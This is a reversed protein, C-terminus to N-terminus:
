QTVGQHRSTSLLRARIAADADASAGTVVQVQPRGDAAMTRGRDETDEALVQIAVSRAATIAVEGTAIAAALPDHLPAARVGDVSEYFDIYRRLMTGLALHLPHGSDELLAADDDTFTHQLTVDLPVLTVDFGATLVQAAAAADNYINAEAHDTTNGPVWVAGGMIILRHIRQPLAPDQDLARAINTLPGIAVVDLEGAHVRSLRLLMEPGTEDSPTGAGPLSVDGVGNGGHVHPAGGRYAGTRPDHEGVAVPIGPRGALALLALTNASAQQASTNGSVTSIGVLDTDCNLLYTLALADDIGTDCDLLLPRNNM